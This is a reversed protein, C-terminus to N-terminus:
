QTRTGDALVAAPNSEKQVAWFSFYGFFFPRQFLHRHVPLGCAQGGGAPERFEETAEVNLNSAISGIAEKAFIRLLQTM